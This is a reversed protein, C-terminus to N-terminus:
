KRKAKARKKAPTVAVYQDQFDADDLQDLSDGIILWDGVCLYVDDGRSQMINVSISATGLDDIGGGHAGADFAAALVAPGNSETLQIAKVTNSNKRRYVKM